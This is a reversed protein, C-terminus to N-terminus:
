PEKKSFVVLVKLDETISHFHHPIHAAVFITDGPGVVRSVGQSEFEAAGSIVYYLEDLDHPKQPDVQGAGLEYIEASMTPEDIFVHFATDANQKNAQTIEALSWIGSKLTM